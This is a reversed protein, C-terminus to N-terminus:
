DSLTWLTFVYSVLFNNVFYVVSNKIQPAALHRLRLSLLLYLLTVGSPAKIALLPQPLPHLHLKQVRVRPRLLTRPRLTMM